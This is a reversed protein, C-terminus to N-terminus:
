FVINRNIKPNNSSALVKLWFFKQSHIQPNKTELVISLSDMVYGDHGDYTLTVPWIGYTIKNGLMTFVNINDTANNRM